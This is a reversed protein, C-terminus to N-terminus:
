LALHQSLLIMKLHVETFETYKKNKWSVNKQSINIALKYFYGLLKWKNQVVKFSLKVVKRIM